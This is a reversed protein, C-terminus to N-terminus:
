IRQSIIFKTVPIWNNLMIPYSPLLYEKYFNLFHPSFLIYFPIQKVLLFFSNLVFTEFVLKSFLLNLFIALPLYNLFMRYLSFLKWKLIEKKKTHRRVWGDIVHKNWILPSTIPFMSLRSPLSKWNKMIIRRSIERTWPITLVAGGLLSYVLPLFTRNKFIPDKRPLARTERPAFFSHPPDDEFRLVM